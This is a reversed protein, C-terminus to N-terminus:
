ECRLAEIPDVRSAKRAPVYCAALSVAALMLPIMLFTGPDRAKVEFLLSALVRSLALAGLLGAAIGYLSLAMGERIVLRQVDSQQAGLAMRVGIESTRQNVSYALVGYIGIVAILVALGAFVALLVTNLRPQAANSYVWEDMARVNSLPLEPDLDHITRRITPLAMEPKGATRVVVDMQLTQRAAAPYYMAPTPAQNLANNRVSAVVGVVTFNKGNGIIHVQRGIPDDDGWLKAATDQSVIMVPLSNLADHEDFYRGRLLEIGMTRFYDPSINRWDIPIATGPPLLTKGITNAPTTTYLGAGLPLGSSVAANKVGPLSRLSEILRKYFAWTKEPGQYKAPPLAIQFTLLGQPEFGVRVQQLRQLSQILLGAGILLITALALEGGVLWNRLSSRATGSPSRGGSNLLRSLDSNLAHWAPAMGCL